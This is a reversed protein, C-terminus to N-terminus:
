KKPKQATKDWLVAQVETPWHEDLSVRGHFTLKRAKLPLDATLLTWDCIAVNRVSGGGIPIPYLRGNEDTCYSPEVAHMSFPQDIDNDSANFIAHVRYFPAGKGPQDITINPPSLQGVRLVPQKASIEENEQRLAFGLSSSPIIPLHLEYPEDKIGVQKEASFEDIHLRLAGKSRPIDALRTAVTLKYNDTSEDYLLSRTDRHKDDQIGGLPIWKQGKRSLWQAQGPSMASWAQGWEEPRTGKHALTLVFRSDFGEAVDRATPKQRQVDQVLLQFPGSQAAAPAKQQTWLAAGGFAAPALLLLAAERPLNAKKM